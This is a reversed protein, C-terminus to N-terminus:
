QVRLKVQYFNQYNFSSHATIKANEALGIAYAIAGGTLQIPKIDIIKKLSDVFYNRTDCTVYYNSFSIKYFRDGNLTISSNLPMTVFSGSASKVLNGKQNFPNVFTFIIYEAKDNVFSRVSLLAGPQNCTQAFCYQTSNFAVMLFLTYIIKKM